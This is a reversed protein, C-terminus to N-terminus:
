QRGSSPLTFPLEAGWTEGRLIISVKLTWADSPQRPLLIKGRWHGDAQRTLTYRNFAKGGGFPLFDVTVLGAERAAPAPLMVDIEFPRLAAVDGELSLSFSREAEGRLLCRRNVPQCADGSYLTFLRGSAPQDAPGLSSPDHSFIFGLVAILAFVAVLSRAYRM